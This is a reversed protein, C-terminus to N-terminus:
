GIKKPNHSKHSMIGTLVVGSDERISMGKLGKLIDLLNVVSTKCGDKYRNNGTFGSWLRM